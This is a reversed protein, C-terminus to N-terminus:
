REHGRNFLAPLIQRDCSKSWILGLREALARLGNSNGAIVEDSSVRVVNPATDALIDLREQYRSAFSRWFEASHSHRSMFGTSLCSNVVAEIDREVIVWTADPFAELWLPWVLALKPEKYGWRRRGDHGQQAFVGLVRERLKPDPALRTLDPLRHVGLPDAGVAKLNPKLIKERIERNEYFGRPNDATAGITPGMWLGAAQLCSAIMSTGSRPIGTILVPGGTDPKAPFVSGRRSLDANVQTIWNQIDTTTAKHRPTSHASPYVESVDGDPGWYWHTKANMLVYSPVNALGALHLNASDVSIVGALGSIMDFLAAIDSRIDFDPAQIRGSQQLLQKEDEQLDAQLAVYSPGVPLLDLFHQLDYRRQERRNQASGGRWCVGFKPFLPRRPNDLFPAPKFAGFARHAAALYDGSAHMKAGNLDDYVVGNRRFEIAPFFRRVFTELQRPGVIVKPATRRVTTMLALHLLVDGVGQELFMADAEDGNGSGLTQYIAGEPIFSGFNVAGHRHPYLRLGQRLKGDWLRRLSASWGFEAHLDPRFARIRKARDIAGVQLAFRYGLAPSAFIEPSRLIERAAACTDAGFIATALTLYNYRRLLAGAIMKQDVSRLIVACASVEGRKLLKEAKDLSSAAGNQHRVEDEAAEIPPADDLLRDTPTPM